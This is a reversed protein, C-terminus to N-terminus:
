ETAEGEDWRSNPVSGGELSTVKELKSFMGQFGIRFRYNKEGRYVVACRDGGTNVIDLTHGNGFDIHIAKDGRSLYIGTPDADLILKYVSSCNHDSLRVDGGVYTVRASDQERAYVMDWALEWGFKQWANRLLFHSALWIVFVLFIILPVLWFLLFKIKEFRARRRCQKVYDPNYDKGTMCGGMM